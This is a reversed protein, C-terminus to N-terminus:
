SAAGLAARLAEARASVDALVEALAAGCAPSVGLTITQKVARQRAQEALRAARKLLKRAKGTRTAAEAREVASTARDIRREISRPLGEFCFTALRTPDFACRVGEFSALPDYVCGTVPDCSDVTCPDFDDCLEPAGAQCAGALCTDLVTCADGDDCIRGDSKPTEVCVGTAPECAADVCGSSPTCVTAVGGGCSGAACAEGTTCANADDCTTGDGDATCTAGCCDGDLTNGDDCGDQPDVIGDGCVELTCDPRCGDGVAANADDCAEGAELAGTGCPFDGGSARSLKLVTYGDGGNRTRGAALVNADADLAIEQGLDAESAVGDLVRRWREAGTAGDLALVAFDRGSGPNRLSGVVAVDGAADVAVDSADDARSNAGDLVVRWAEAGTAGDLKVVALDDGTAVDSLVGAALVDGNGDVALGFAEDGDDAGTASGDLAVRWDESGDAAFAVVTFDQGTVVDSLRGALVVGGGPRLGLARVVATTGAAGALDTRWAETGDAGARRTVFISEAVRGAVIVDSGEAVVIAQGAGGDGALQQEWLPDGAAGARKVVVPRTVTAGSPTVAGTVVVDGNADLALAEGDDALAAGGDLAVEWVVAGDAAARRTLLLDAGTTANVVIGAGIVDGGGALVLSRVAESALNEGGPGPLASGDIPQRWLVAGDTGSLKVLLADDDATPSVVRGASVVDGAADVAVAFPRSGDPSDPVLVPWAMARSSLAVLLFPLVRAAVRCTM